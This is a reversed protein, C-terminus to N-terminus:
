RLYHISIHDHQVHTCIMASESNIIVLLPACVYTVTGVKSNSKERINEEKGM